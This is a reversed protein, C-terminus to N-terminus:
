FPCGGGLLFILRDQCTWMLCMCAGRFVTLREIVCVVSPWWEEREWTVFVVDHSADQRGFVDDESDAWLFVDVDNGELKYARSFEHM